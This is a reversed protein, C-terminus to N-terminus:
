LPSKFLKIKSLMVQFIFSINIRKKLYMQKKKMEMKKLFLQFLDIFKRDNIENVAWNSSYFNQRVENSLGGLNEFINMLEDDDISGVDYEKVLIHRRDSVDIPKQVSNNKKNKCEIKKM